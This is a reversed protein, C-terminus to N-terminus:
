VIILLSNCYAIQSLCFAETNGPQQPLQGVVLTTTTTDLLTCLNNHCIGSGCHSFLTWWHLLFHFKYIAKSCMHLFFIWFVTTASMSIRLAGTDFTLM